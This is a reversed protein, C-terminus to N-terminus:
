MGHYPLVIDLFCKAGALGLGLYTVSAEVSAGVLPSSSLAQLIWICADPALEFQLLM